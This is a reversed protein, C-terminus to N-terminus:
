LNLTEVHNAALIINVRGIDEKTLKDKDDYVVEAIQLFRLGRITRYSEYVCNDKIWFHSHNHSKELQTLGM